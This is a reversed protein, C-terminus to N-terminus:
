ESGSELLRRCRRQWPVDTGTVFVADASVLVVRDEDAAYSRWLIRMMDRQMM